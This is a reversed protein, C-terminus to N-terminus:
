EKAGLDNLFDETKKDKPKTQPRTPDKKIEQSPTFVQLSMIASDSSAIWSAITDGSGSQTDNLLKDLDTMSMGPVPMSKGCRPCTETKGVLCDPVSIQEGCGQCEFEIM